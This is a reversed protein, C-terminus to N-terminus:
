RNRWPNLQYPNEFNNIPFPDNIRGKNRKTHIDPIGNSIRHKNFGSPSKNVLLSSLYHCIFTDVVELYIDKLTSKDYLNGFKCKKTSLDDALQQPTMTTQSHKATSRRITNLSLKSPAYKKLSNHVVEPYLRMVKRVRNKENRKSATLLTLRDQACMRSNLM